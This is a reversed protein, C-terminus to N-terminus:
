VRKSQSVLHTPHELGTMAMTHYKINNPPSIVAIDKELNALDFTFLNQERKAKAIVKRKKM